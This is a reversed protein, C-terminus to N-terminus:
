PAPPAPIAFLPRPDIATGDWYRAPNELRMLQFHLHPIHDPANGSTGVYGLVDGKAVNDGERLGGRYADLHAYYFVYRESPDLAYITTGGASNSRLKLIRGSDAALIPTGRAALIDVAGHIRPGRRATFNDPVQEPAVGAVPVMLQRSLLYNADADTAGAIPRRVVTPGGGGNPTSPAPLPREIPRPTPLCGALLVATALAVACKPLPIPRVVPM